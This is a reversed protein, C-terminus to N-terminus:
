AATQAVASLRGGGMIYQHIQYPTIDGDIVAQVLVLRDDVRIGATQQIKAQHVAWDARSKKPIGYMRRNIEYDIWYTLCTAFYELRDRSLTGGVGRVLPRLAEANGAALADALAQRLRPSLTELM